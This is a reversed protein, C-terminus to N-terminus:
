RSYSPHPSSPLFRRSASSPEDPHRYFSYAYARADPTATVVVNRAVGTLDPVPIERVRRGGFFLTV